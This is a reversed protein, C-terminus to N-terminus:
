SDEVNFEKCMKISYLTRDLPPTDGVRIVEWLLIFHVYCSRSLTKLSMEHLCLVVLLEHKALSIFNRNNRILLIRTNIVLCLLILIVYIIYDLVSIVM